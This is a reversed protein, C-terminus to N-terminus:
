NIPIYKSVIEITKPIEGDRYGIKSSLAYCVLEAWYENVNTEGYNDSTMNTLIQPEVEEKFIETLSKRDENTVLESYVYHGLEHVLTDTLDFFLSAKKGNTFLVITNKNPMFMGSIASKGEYYKNSAEDTVIIKGNDKIFQNIIEKPFKSLALCLSSKFTESGEGIYEINLSNLIEPEPISWDTVKLAREILAVAEARTINNEPYVYGNNGKVVGANKAIFIYSDYNWITSFPMDLFADEANYCRYDIIYEPKAALYVIDRIVNKRKINADLSDPHSEINLNGNAKLTNAYPTAWHGSNLEKVDLHFANSLMKYFEGHSIPAYPNFTGDTYGSIYGAEVGSLVDHYFWDNEDIDSFEEASVSITSIVIFALFIFLLNRFKLCFCRRFYFKNNSRNYIM